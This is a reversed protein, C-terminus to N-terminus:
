EQNSGGPSCLTERCGAAAWSTGANTRGGPQTGRAQSGPKGHNWAMTLLRTRTRVRSGPKGHHWAM